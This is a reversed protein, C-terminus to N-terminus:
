NVEPSAEGQQKKLLRALLADYIPPTRLADATFIALIVVTAVPLLYTLTGSMEATLLISTLPTRVSAALVGAMGCIALLAHAHASAGALQLTLAYAAGTLAGIALIPMFIGGPTGSGFSVATLAIKAALVLVVLGLGAEAHEAWSVLHEGGGLLAPYILGFVTALMLATIIGLPGPLSGLRQSALLLHNVLAGVIGALVGLPLIMWMSSMALPGVPAFALIPRSGFLLTSIASASLAGAAASAIALPSFTKHLGELGFLIGSVPANFAAALGASAGSTVLQRQEEPTAKLPTALLQAGSAGLHISPGERGLSLGCFAGLTGGAIRVAIVPLPRISMKGAIVGKVQPIGSGSAQPEWKLALWILTGILPVLVLWGIIAVPHEAIFAYADVAFETGREISLRYVLALSGGVIGAILGNRTVRWRRSGALQQVRQILRSWM